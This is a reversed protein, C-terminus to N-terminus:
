KNNRKTVNLSDKINYVRYVKSSDIYLYELM